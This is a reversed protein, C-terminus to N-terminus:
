RTHHWGQAALGSPTYSLLSLLGHLALWIAADEVDEADAGAELNWTRNLAQGSKGRYNYASIFAKRRLSSKTM